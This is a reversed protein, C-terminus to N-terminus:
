EKVLDVIDQRGYTKAYTEATKGTSSKLSKSAKYKLLLKTIMEHGQNVAFMLPSSGKDMSGYDFQSQLDPDAGNQLLIDAIDYNRYHCAWMLPTLGWEDYHNVDEGQKILKKVSLMDGEYSAVSLHSTTKCQILMIILSLISMVLTIQNKKM